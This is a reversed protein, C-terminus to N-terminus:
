FICKKCFPIDCNMKICNNKHIKFLNHIRKCTICEMQFCYVPHNFYNKLLRCNISPCLDDICLLCHELFILHTKLNKDLEDKKLNSLYKYFENNLEIKKNKNNEFVKDTEIVKSKKIQLLINANDIMNEDENIKRKITNIEDSLKLHLSEKKFIEISEKIRDISKIKENQFIDYIIKLNKDEENILKNYEDNLIKNSLIDLNNLETM